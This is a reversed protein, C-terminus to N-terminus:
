AAWKSEDAGLLRVKAINAAIMDRPWHEPVLVLEGDYVHRQYLMEAYADAMPSRARRLVRSVHKITEQIEDFELADTRKQRNGHAFGGIYRNGPPESESWSAMERLREACYIYVDRLARLDSNSPERKTVAPLSFNM